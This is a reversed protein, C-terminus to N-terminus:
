KRTQWEVVLMSAWLGAPAVSALTLIVVTTLGHIIACFSRNSEPRILTTPTM